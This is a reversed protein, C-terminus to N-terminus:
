IHGIDLSIRQKMADPEGQEEAVEAKWFKQNMILYNTIDRMGDLYEKTDEYNISDGQSMGNYGARHIVLANTVGWLDFSAKLYQLQIKLNFQGETFQSRDNGSGFYVAEDSTNFFNYFFNMGRKSSDAIPDAIGNNNMDHRISNLYDENMNFIGFNASGDDKWDKTKDWGLMRDTEVMGMAFVLAITRDDNDFVEEAQRRLEKKFKVFNYDIWQHFPARQINSEKGSIFDKVSDHSNKGLDNFREINNIFNCKEKSEDCQYSSNSESKLSTAGKRSKCSIAFISVSFFLAAYKLNRM